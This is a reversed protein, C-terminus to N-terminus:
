YNMSNIPNNKLVLTQIVEKSAKDIRCPIKLVSFNIVQNAARKTANGEL